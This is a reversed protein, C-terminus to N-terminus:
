KKNQGELFLHVELACSRADAMATPLDMPHKASGCLFIGSVATGEASPFGTTGQRIELEDRFLLEEPSQRVGTALVVLDAPIEYLERLLTNEGCVVLDEGKEIVLSPQGRIFRVGQRRAERYLAEQGLGSTRIDIYLVVVEMSPDLRKLELANKISNTCCLTSCYPVGRRETRSGVCQIFVVSSPKKKGRGSLRNERLMEELEISSIVGEKFGHGYEPVLGPPIEDLGTAIVLAKAEIIKGDDLEVKFNPGESSVSVAKRSLDVNIKKEGKIENILNNAEESAPKLDPSLSDLRCLRGGLRDSREILEVSHGLRALAISAALGAPGGGIIIVSSDHQSASASMTAVVVGVPKM